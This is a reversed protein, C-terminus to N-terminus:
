INFKLFQTKEIVKGGLSCKDATVLDTKKTASLLHMCAQQKGTSTIGKVRGKITVTAILV